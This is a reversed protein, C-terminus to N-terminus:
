RVQSAKSTVSISAVESSLQMTASSISGAAAM